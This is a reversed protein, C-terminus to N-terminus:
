SLRSVSSVPLSQVVLTVIDGAVKFLRYDTAVVKRDEPWLASVVFVNLIRPVLSDIYEVVDTNKARVKTRLAEALTKLLIHSYAQAPELEDGHAGSSICLYDFKALLRM